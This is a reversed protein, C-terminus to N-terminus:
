NEGSSVLANIIIEFQLFGKQEGYNICFFTLMKFASCRRM